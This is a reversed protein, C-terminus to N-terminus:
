ELRLRPNGSRPVNTEYRTGDGAVLAFNGHDPLDRKEGRPRVRESPFPLFSCLVRPLLIMAAEVGVGVINEIVRRAMAELRNAAISSDIHDVLNIVVSVFYGRLHRSSGSRAGSKEDRRQITQKHGNRATVIL